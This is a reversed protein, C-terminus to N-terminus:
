VLNQSSLGEASPVPTDISSKSYYDALLLVRNARVKAQTIFVNFLHSM